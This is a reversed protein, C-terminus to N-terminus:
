TSPTTWVSPRRSAVGVRRPQAGHQERGARRDEEQEEEADQGCSARGCGGAPPRM